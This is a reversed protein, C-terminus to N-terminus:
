LKVSNTLSWFIAFNPKLGILWNLILYTKYTKIVFTKFVATKLSIQDRSIKSLTLYLGIKALKQNKALEVIDCFISHTAKNSKRFIKLSHDPSFFVLFVM